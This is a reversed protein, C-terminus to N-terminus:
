IVSFDISSINICFYQFVNYIHQAFLHACLHRRKAQPLMSLFIACKSFCKMHVPRRAYPFIFVMKFQIHLYFSRFFPFYAILFSSFIVIKYFNFLLWMELLMKWQTASQKYFTFQFVKRTFVVINFFRCQEGQETDYVYYDINEIQFAWSFTELWINPYFYFWFCMYLVHFDVIKGKKIFATWSSKHGEYLM